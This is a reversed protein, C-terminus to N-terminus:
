SRPDDKVETMVVKFKKGSLDKPRNDLGKPIEIMDSNGLGEQNLWEEVFGEFELKIPEKIEKYDWDIIVSLRGFSKEEMFFEETYKNLPFMINYAIFKKGDMALQILEHLKKTM